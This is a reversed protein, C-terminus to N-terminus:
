WTRDIGVVKYGTEEKRLYVRVTKLPNGPDDILVGFYANLPARLADEPLQISAAGPLAAHVKDTNSFRYL